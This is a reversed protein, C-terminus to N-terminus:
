LTLGLTVFLPIFFKLLLVNRWKRGHLWILERCWLVCNLSFCIKDLCKKALAWILCCECKTLVVLLQKYVESPYMQIEILLSEWGRLSSGEGMWELEERDEVVVVQRSWWLFASCKERWGTLRVMLRWRQQVEAMGGDWGGGPQRWCGAEFGASTPEQLMVQAWVLWCDQSVERRLSSCGCFYFSQIFSTLTVM